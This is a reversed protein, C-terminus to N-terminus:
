QGKDERINTQRSITLGSDIMRTYGAPNWGAFKEDGMPLQLPYMTHVIAALFINIWGQYDV